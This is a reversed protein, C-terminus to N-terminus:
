PASQLAASMAARDPERDFWWAFALAGQELLVGRGDLRLAVDPGDRRFSTPGACARGAWPRLQPRALCGAARRAASEAPRRSRLRAADRGRRARRRGAAALVATTRSAPRRDAGGSGPAADGALPATRRRGAGLAGRDLCPRRRHAPLGPDGGARRGRRRHRGRIRPAAGLGALVAAIGGVDTNHGEWGGADWRVTNVAAAAVADDTLRACLAAAATKHPATVNLGRLGLERGRDRLVDLRPADIEVARYDFALGAARLAAGQFRPSLSHGVPDGVVAYFPRPPTWPLGDRLWSAADPALRLVRAEPAPM